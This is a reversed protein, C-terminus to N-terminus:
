RATDSDNASKRSTVTESGDSLGQLIYLGGLSAQLLFSYAKPRLVHVIPVGATTLLM